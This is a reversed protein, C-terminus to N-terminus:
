VVSHALDHMFARQINGVMTSSASRRASRVFGVLRADLQDAAEVDFGALDVRDLEVIVGLRL